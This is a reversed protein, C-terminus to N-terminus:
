SAFLLKMDQLDPNERLWSTLMALNLISLKRKYGRMTRYREKINWGIIQETKNNTQDISIDDRRLFERDCTHRAWHNWLRLVHNRMRYWVSARHHKKPAKAASYRQFLAELLALANWPHGLMIWELTELDELFQDITVNLDGPIAPPKELVQDATKSVFELVNLTVHRRCVQHEVGAADASQKFADQDDSLLVEAGVSGLLPHLWAEITDAEENNLLEIDLVIGQEVDIAVGIIAQEGQYEVYTLDGGVVKIKSKGQELRNSKLHRVQGGAAQVNRYVTSDSLYFGLATLMDEVGRYSMGLIYFLISVSKMRDTQHQNAKVGQPFVRHTRDCRLCKRRYVEVEELKTDRVARLCAKQHPKFYRGQCGENPCEEPEEMVTVEVEAIRARVRM